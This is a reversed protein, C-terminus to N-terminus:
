LAESDGTRYDLQKRGNRPVASLSRRGNRKGVVGSLERVIVRMQETQENLAESASASLQSSAAHEHTVKEIEAMATTIQQIGRAQENSAAAIEDMLESVKRT